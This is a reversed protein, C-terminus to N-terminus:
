AVNRWAMWWPFIIESVFSVVCYHLVLYIQSSEWRAWPFDIVDGNGDGDGDEPLVLSPRPRTRSRHWCPAPPRGPPCGAGWDTRRWGACPCWPCPRPPPHISVTTLSSLTNCTVHPTWSQSHQAPLQELTRLLSKLNLVLFDSGESANGPVLKPMGKNGKEPLHCVERLVIQHYRTFINPTHLCPGPSPRLKNQFITGIKIPMPIQALTVLLFGIIHSKM